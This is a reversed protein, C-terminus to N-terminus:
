QLREGTQALGEGAKGMGGAVVGVGGAIAGLVAGPSKAHMVMMAAQAAYAGQQVASAVRAVTQGALAATKGAAGAASSLFSGTGPVFAGAVSAVMGLWNKNKAADIAGIASSIVLSLGGTLPALVISLIPAAMKLVSGLKALFGKKQKASADIIEGDAGVRVKLEYKKDLKLTLKHRGPQKLASVTQMFAADLKAGKTKKLHKESVGLSALLARKREVSLAQLEAATMELITKERPPLTSLEPEITPPADFAVTAAAAALSTSDASVTHQATNGTDGRDGMDNAEISARKYAAYWDIGRHVAYSHEDVCPAAQLDAQALAEAQTARLAAPLAAHQHDHAIRM